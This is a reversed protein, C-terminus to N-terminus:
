GGSDGNKCLYKVTHLDLMTLVFSHPLRDSNRPFDNGVGM